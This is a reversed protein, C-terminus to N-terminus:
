QDSVGGAAKLQEVRALSQEAAALQAKAGTLAATAQALQADAMRSDLRAIAEGARVAQGRHVLLAEIRGPVDFGLQVMAVPEISGTLEVTPLWDAAEVPATQVTAAAAEASKADLPQKCSFLVLLALM